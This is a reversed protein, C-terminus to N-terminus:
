TCAKVEPVGALKHISIMRCRSAQADVLKINLFPSATLTEFFIDAYNPSFFISGPGVLPTTVDLPNTGDYLTMALNSPLTVTDGLVADRGESYNGASDYRGKAGTITGSTPPNIDAFLLVNPQGSGPTTNFYVGYNAPTVYDPVGGCSPGTGTNDCGDHDADTYDLQGKGTIAMSRANSILSVIKDFNNNFIQLSSANTMSGLALGAVIVIITMVLLLEILTFGGRNGGAGDGFKGKLNLM